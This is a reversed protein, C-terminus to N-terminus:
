FTSVKEEDASTSGSGIKNDLLEIFTRLMESKYNVYNDNIEGELGMADLQDKRDPNAENANQSLEVM